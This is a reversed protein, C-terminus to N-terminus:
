LKIFVPLRFPGDGGGDSQKGYRYYFSLKRRCCSTSSGFVIKQLQFINFRQKEPLKHPCAQWRHCWSSKFIEM